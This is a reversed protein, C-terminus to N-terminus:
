LSEYEEWKGFSYDSGVEVDVGIPTGPISCGRDTQTFIKLMRSSEEVLAIPVEALISDHVMGFIKIDLNNADIWKQYEICALINIDSAVSQIKFNIASRIEHGVVSRDSSYVDPVRRKRGLVSWTHGVRRIEKKSSDLWKKLDSFKKFYDDIIESAKFESINASEAVKKPGSGFLIGFSVAKIANRLEPLQEKIESVLCDIQGGFVEMCMSSHFDEGSTFVRQLAKDGSLVAAVYMEATSLDQSVIVYGERAKIAGKVLAAGVGERPLQQANLTGSSSLRGSTTTTQNFNTRLRGDRDLNDLIKIIYTNLIKTYKRIKLVLNAIPHEKGLIDLAEKNLSHAGSDTMIGTPTINLFTFLLSTLQPISNLNVKAGQIDEFEKIKPNSYFEKKVEGILKLLKDRGLELRDKDFPIGNDEITILLDTGQLLLKNYTLNYRTNKQIIPYLKNFVELTVAADIAAYKYMIDIPIMDYCFESLKIGISRCHARKWEELPTDYFKFQTYANGLQKLSHTGQKERLTYHILLTDHYKSTKLGFSNRLFPIDFKANHYILTSSDMVDQILKFTETEFLLDYPIYVGQNEEHSVSMGIVFNKYKSLGDTETDMSVFQTGRISNFYECVEAETKILRLDAIYESTALKGAVYQCVREVAANFAPKMSPKISLQAPNTVVLFQNDFLYGQSDTVNTISAIHKAPEAGILIVYDYTDKVADVIDQDIERKLLKGTKKHELLHLTDFDFDFYKSYDTKTPYKDIVIVSM